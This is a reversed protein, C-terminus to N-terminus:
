FYSLNIGFLSCLVQLANSCQLPPQSIHGSLTVCADTPTDLNSSPHPVDTDHSLLNLFAPKLCSVSIWQSTESIEVQYTKTHRAAVRYPGRYPPQRANGHTDVHIYVFTRSELPLCPLEQHCPLNYLTPTTSPAVPRPQRFLDGPLLPLHCWILDVSFM